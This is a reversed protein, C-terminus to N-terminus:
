GAAAYKLHPRSTIASLVGLDAELSSDGNDKKVLMPLYDHQLECHCTENVLQQPWRRKTKSMYSAESGTALWVKDGCRRSYRKVNSLQEHSLRAM